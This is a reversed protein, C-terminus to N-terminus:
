WTSIHYIIKQHQIHKRIKSSIRYYYHRAQVVLFVCCYTVALQSFFIMHLYNLFEISDHFLDHVLDVYYSSNTTQGRPTTTDVLM